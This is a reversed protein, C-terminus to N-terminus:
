ARLARAEQGVKEVETCALLKAEHVLEDARQKFLVRKCAQRVFQAQPYPIFRVRELKSYSVLLGKGLNEGKNVVGFDKNASCLDRLSPTIEKAIIHGPLVEADLM